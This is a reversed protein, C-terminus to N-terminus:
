RCEETIRDDPPGLNPEIPLTVTMPNAPAPVGGETTAVQSPPLDSINPPPGSTTTLNYVLPPQGKKAKVEYQFVDVDQPSLWINTNTTRSDTCPTFKKTVTPDIHRSSSNGDIAVQKSITLKPEAHLRYECAAYSNRM